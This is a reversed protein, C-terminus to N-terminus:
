QFESLPMEFLRDHSVYPIDYKVKYSAHMVLFYDAYDSLDIPSNINYQTTFAEVEDIVYFAYPEKQSCIGLDLTSNFISLRYINDPNLYYICQYIVKVTDFDEANCVNEDKQIELVTLHIYRNEVTESPYKIMVSESSIVTGLFGFRNQRTEEPFEKYKFKAISM